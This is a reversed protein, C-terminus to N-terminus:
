TVSRASYRVAELTREAGAEPLLHAGANPLVLARRASVGHRLLGICSLSSGSEVPNLPLTGFRQYQEYKKASIQHRFRTWGHPLWLFDCIGDSKTTFHCAMSM